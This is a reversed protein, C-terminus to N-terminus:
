TAWHDPRVWTRRSRTDSRNCPLLVRGPTTIHLAQRLGKVAVTPVIKSSQLIGKFLHSRPKRNMAPFLFPM